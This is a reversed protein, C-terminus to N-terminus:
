LIQVILFDKDPINPGSILNYKTKQTNLCYITQSNLNLFNNSFKFEPFQKLSKHLM